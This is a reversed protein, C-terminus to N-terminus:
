SFGKTRDLPVDAPRGMGFSSVLPPMVVLLTWQNVKSSILAGLASEGALRWAVISVVAFEPAESALSAVWRVGLFEDVGPTTGTGILATAVPRAVALIIAAAVTPLGAM